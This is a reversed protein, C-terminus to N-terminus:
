TLNDSAETNVLHKTEESRSCDTFRFLAFGWAEFGASRFWVSDSCMSRLTEQEAGGREGEGKYLGDTEGLLVTM